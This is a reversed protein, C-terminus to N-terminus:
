RTLSKFLSRAGFWHRAAVGSPLHGGGPRRVDSGGRRNRSFHDHGALCVAAAGRGGTRHKAARGAVRRTGRPLRVGLRASRAPPPPGPPRGTKWRRVTTVDRKLYATIEKWSDSGTTRRLPRRISRPNRPHHVIGWELRGDRRLADVPMLPHVKICTTVDARPGGHNSDRSCPPESAHHSRADETTTHTIVNEPAHDEAACVVCVGFHSTSNWPPPSNEVFGVPPM